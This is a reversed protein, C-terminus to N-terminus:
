WWWRWPSSFLHIIRGATLFLILDQENLIFVVETVHGGGGGRGEWMEGGALATTNLRRRLCVHFFINLSEWSTTGCCQAGGGERDKM